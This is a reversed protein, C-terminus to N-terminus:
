LTRQNKKPTRPGGPDVCPTDDAADSTYLLCRYLRTAVALELVADGRFKLGKNSGGGQEACGPRRDRICRESGVLGSLLEYATKQKLFFLEWM